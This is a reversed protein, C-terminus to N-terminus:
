TTPNSKRGQRYILMACWFYVVTDDVGRRVNGVGKPWIGRPFRCRHKRRAATELLLIYVHFSGSCVTSLMSVYVREWGTLLGTLMFPIHYPSSVRTSVAVLLSVMCHLIVIHHWIPSFTALIENEHLSNSLLLPSSGMREGAAHVGCGFIQVM